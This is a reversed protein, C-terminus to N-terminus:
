RLGRQAAKGPPPAGDEAPVSDPDIRAPAAGALLEADLPVSRKVLALAVPGLEHHQVVSGVRGVPRGGSTVPDGETPLEEDGADLLLLVLRRPPRGLNAVRAVTEQGRYCGKTLHVAPGIWGTEHPITREDTDLGVRPVLSEVRLAEWAVSGAPRAGAAALRGLWAEREGRPVVVDAADPGPTGTRRVFGGGDVPAAHGTAPVPVGAAALVAATDPGAVSLVALEATADRPEVKSWFVMKRLYGLLDDLEGAETDLYVTDGVHAVGMHHQVRGKVDLVLSETAAGEPLEAVHQTLLLHLWSLRDEGPVAIVARHGRDVVAASRAMARQESIPDGRHAPVADDLSHTPLTM